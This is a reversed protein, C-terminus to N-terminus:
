TEAAEDITDRPAAFDAGVGCHFASLPMEMVFQIVDVVVGTKCMRFSSPSNAVSEALPPHKTKSDDPEVFFELKQLAFSAGSGEPVVFYVEMSTGTGGPLQSLVEAVAALGEKNSRGSTVKLAHSAHATTVQLLRLGCEISDISAFNSSVPLFRHTSLMWIGVRCGSAITELENFHVSLLAKKFKLLQAPAGSDLRRVWFSGGQELTDRVAVEFLSGAFGKTSRSELAQQMGELLASYKHTALARLVRRSVADSCFSVPGVTLTSRDADVTFLSHPSDDTPRSSSTEIELQARQLTVPDAKSIARLVAHKVALQDRSFVARPIRGAAQVRLALVSRSLQADGYEAVRLVELEATSFLPFYVMRASEKEVFWRWIFPDPSSIMIQHCLGELTPKRSDCIHVVSRESLLDGVAGLDAILTKFAVNRHFVYHVEAFPAGRQASNRSYVVTRGSRLLQALLWLGFASKGIGPQGLVAIKRQPGDAPLMGLWKAETFFRGYFDRELVVRQRLMPWVLPARADGSSELRWLSMGECVVEPSASRVAAYFDTLASDRSLGVNDSVFSSRYL